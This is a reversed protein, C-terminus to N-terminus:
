IYIYSHQMEVVLISMMRPHFTPVLPDPSAEVRGGTRGRRSISYATLNRIGKWWCGCVVGAVLWNNCLIELMKCGAEFFTGVGELFQFCGIGFEGTEDDKSKMSVRQDTDASHLNFPLDGAIDYQRFIFQLHLKLSGFHHSQEHPNIRPPQPPVIISM